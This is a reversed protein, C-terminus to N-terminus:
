ALDSWGHCKCICKEEKCKYCKGKECLDSKKDIKAKELDAVALSYVADTDSVRFLEGVTTYSSRVTEPISAGETCVSGTNMIPEQTAVRMDKEVKRGGEMAITFLCVGRDIIQRQISVHAFQCITDGVKVFNFFTNTHGLFGMEEEIPFMLDFYAYIHLPGFPIPEGRLTMAINQDVNIDCRAINKTYDKGGIIIHCRRPDQKTPMCLGKVAGNCKYNNILPHLRVSPPTLIEMGM